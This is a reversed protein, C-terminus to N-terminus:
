SNRHAPYPLQSSCSWRLEAFYSRRWLRVWSVLWMAWIHPMSTFLFCVFSWCGCIFMHRLFCGAFKWKICDPSIKHATTDCNTIKKTKSKFYTVTGIWKKGKCKRWTVVAKKGPILTLDEKVVTIKLSTPTTWQIEKSKRWFQYNTRALGFWIEVRCYRGGQIPAWSTTKTGLWVHRKEM